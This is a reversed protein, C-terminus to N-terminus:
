VLLSPSAAEANYERVPNPKGLSCLIPSRRSRWLWLTRLTRFQFSSHLSALTTRLVESTCVYWRKSSSRSPDWGPSIWLSLQSEIRMSAPKQRFNAQNNSSLCIWLSTITVKIIITLIIPSASHLNSTSNWWISLAYRIRAIEYRNKDSSLM